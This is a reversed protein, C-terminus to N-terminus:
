DGTGSGARARAREREIAWYVAEPTAPLALETVGGRGFAAVAARLAERVSIALM